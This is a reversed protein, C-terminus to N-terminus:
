ECKLLLIIALAAEVANNLTIILLDGLSSGLYLAMQEGCWDFLKELPIISLFCVSGFIGVQDPYSSRIEEHSCMCAFTLNEDWHKFHSAWAFPLVLLLPNLVPSGFYIGLVSVAFPIFMCSSAAVAKISQLIGIRKRGYGNFRAWANKPLSTLPNAPKPEVNTSDNPQVHTPLNHNDGNTLIRESPITLEEDLGLQKESPPHAAM